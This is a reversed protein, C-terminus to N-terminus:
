LPTRKLIEEFEEKKFPHLNKSLLELLLASLTVRGPVLHHSCLEKAAERVQKDTAEPYYRAIHQLQVDLYFSDKALESLTNTYSAAGLWDFNHM